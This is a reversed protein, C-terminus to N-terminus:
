ALRHREVSTLSRMLYPLDDDSGLLGSRPWPLPRVHPHM